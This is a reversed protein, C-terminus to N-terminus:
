YTTMIVIYHTQWGEIKQFAFINAFRYHFNTRSSMRFKKRVNTFWSNITFLAPYLKDESFFAFSLFFDTIKHDTRPLLVIKSIVNKLYKRLGLNDKLFKKISVQCINLRHIALWNKGFFYSKFILTLEIIRIIFCHLNKVDIDICYSIWISIVM